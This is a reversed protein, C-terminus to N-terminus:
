FIKFYKCVERLKMTCRSENIFVSIPWCIGLSMFDLHKEGIAVNIVEINRKAPPSNYSELYNKVFPCLQSLPFKGDTIVTFEIRKSNIVLNGGGTLWDFWLYAAAILRQKRLTPNLEFWVVFEIM